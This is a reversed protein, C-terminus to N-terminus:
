FNGLLSLSPCGMPPYERSASALSQCSHIFPHIGILAYLCEFAMQHWLMQMFYHDETMALVVVFCYTFLFKWLVIFLKLIYTTCAHKNWFFSFKLIKRLWYFLGLEYLYFLISDPPVKELLKQFSNVNFHRNNEIWYFLCLWKSHKSLRIVFVLQVHPTYEKKFLFPHTLDSCSYRIRAIDSLQKMTSSAALLGTKIDLTSYWCYFFKAM